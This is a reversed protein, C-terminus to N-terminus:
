RVSSLVFKYKFLYNGHLESALYSYHPVNSTVMM